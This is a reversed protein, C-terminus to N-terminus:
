HWAAFPRKWMPRRIDVVAFDGECNFTHLGDGRLTGIGSWRAVKHESFGHLSLEDIEHWVLADGYSHECDQAPRLIREGDVIIQGAPRSSRCDSKVPNLPHPQWPGDLSESHYIALEDFASGDEHSIAAFLWWRNKHQLLTADYLAVDQLLLKSLEWQFPFSTARYLEVTRNDASEPIMYIEGAHRFVNPYSLHYPRELVPRPRECTEPGSVRACSIVGKGTKYNLEEVFLWKQRNNTFIFPDAYFRRGDDALVQYNRIPGNNPIRWQDAQLLATFWTEPYRVGRLMRGFVKDLAFRAIFLLFHVDSYTAPSGADDPQTAASLGKALYDSAREVLAVLRAFALQLGRLLVIKDPIAPYSAVIPKEQGALNISLFPNKGVVLAAILGLSDARNGVRPELIPCTPSDIEAESLNLVFLCNSGEIQQWPKASKVVSRAIPIEGFLRREILLWIRMLLPYPPALSNSYIDVDYKRELASIAKLHWGWVRNQPIIVAIRKRSETSSM